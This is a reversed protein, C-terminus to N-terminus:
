SGCNESIQDELRQRAEQIQKADLYEREGDPGERYIRNAQLLNELQERHAACQEQRSALEAAKEAAAKDAEDRAARQERRATEADVFSKRQQQVGSASSRSYSIPVVVESPEGSPRDRYHVNGDADVWRYIESALAAGSLMIVTAVIFAFFQSNKM